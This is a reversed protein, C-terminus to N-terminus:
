TDDEEAIGALATQEPPPTEVPAPRLEPFVAQRLRELVHAEPRVHHGKRDRTAPIALILGQLYDRFLAASALGRQDMFRAAAKTGDEAALLMATHAADLLTPFTAAEPDLRGRGRREEPAQLTVLDQRKALVRHQRVLGAELDLGLALALKRAEDAPFSAARFADWALLYFDAVPDFKVERGLLRQKRLAIVEERAVRLAEEPALREPEGTEPDTTGTLVPWARSLVGLVPGYTALYLDVGAIGAAEYERARERAAERVQPRVEDWWAPTERAPRKQCLLLITSQAANKKAQHLSHESETRVPWSADVTFGAEILARGLANWADARKHTFMVTLVGDDRLIRRFERFCGLMKREYDRDALEDARRGHLGRFRAPNAVAETDKDTFPSTFAEPYLDGVTRRLWVYFFDSLEGYMVNDYYPPDVVIAHVSGSPVDPMAAANGLRLTVPQRADPVAFLHRAPPGALRALGLYADVVQDLAWPLLMRAADFEGHSWKFSFDHRDFTNRVKFRTADWSALTSNYDACKDLAFALYTLVAKARDESLAARVEAAVEHYTELYTLLSLLQRPSFLDAWTPMGYQLPRTDTATEPFPERPVLGRAEWAPLKRALEEEALRVAALDEDTPLRFDKGRPTQIAVAYLQAGMRGAQAEAKIYDDPIPEGTWPSIGTGDAVTGREPRAARARTGTVIEFRCVSSNEDAVVKVAVVPRNKKGGEEKSRLWWNPSLPVPKGTYPCAVSRAWLYAFIREEPGVPFFAALRSQVREAWLRGFRRIDEALGEGFRAPYDLTAALIVYAVPNLEGTLVRLGCRLAEFPISGGGAMPDSVVVDPTGWATALLQQLTAVVDDSPTYSFARGYGYGGGALREGTEKAREIAARAAVPDGRIGLLDNTFWEQYSQADPFRRRLDESWDESWTPLLSGLVAARSVVLPRRAWWVHLRNLPPKQAANTDRFSEAGLVRVPLWRAMFPLTRRKVSPPDVV